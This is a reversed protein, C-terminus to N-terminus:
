EPFFSDDLMQELSFSCAEPFCHEPMDTERSAQGAAVSYIEALNDALAARLSPADKLLAAIEARQTSITRIWSSRPRKPQLKWKLLHILLVRFRSFLERRQSKGMDEIEEAIHELDAEDLRGDRLLEANRLTWQFFDRDYLDKAMMQKINYRASATAM